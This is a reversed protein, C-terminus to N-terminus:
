GTALRSAFVHYRADLLACQIAYAALDLRACQTQVRWTSERLGGAGTEAETDFCGIGVAVTYAIKVFDTHTYVRETCRGGIQKGGGSKGGFNIRGNLGVQGFGVFKRALKECFKYGVMGNGIIVIKM